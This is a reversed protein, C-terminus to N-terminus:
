SLINSTDFHYTSSLRRLYNAYCEVGTTGAVQKKHGVSRIRRVESEIGKYRESWESPKGLLALLSFLHVFSYVM